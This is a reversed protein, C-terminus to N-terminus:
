SRWYTLNLAGLLALVEVRGLIMTASLVVKTAADFDAIPPWAAPDAAGFAAYLPGINAFAAITATLAADLTPLDMAVILMVLGIFLTVVALNSWIAKMLEMDYPVSGFRTSRVGHPHFLRRMEHLTQVAMAGLRYFKIGGATSIAGGGLIALFLVITVPLAAIAAPRPEFGTTSVLSIGAFLGDRLDEGGPLSGGALAVAFALGALISIGVVFYSERHRRLLTWRGEVIMRHWVISTAGVLMFAMVVFEAFTSGYASFDGNEPMFGGTSVTALAICVGAFPPVGSALLLAICVLTVVAYALTVRRVASVIRGFGEEGGAVLAMNLNPTGGLGAPALVTVITILTLLGGLWQLEARYFVGSYGLRTVDGIATAGTTTLGSVAEFLATPGDVAAITILPAAALIPPVTWVTVVLMFGEARNLRRARGQLAFFAAGAIFGVLGAVAIFDDAFALEGVAAAIGAPLLLAFALVGLVQSLFYLIGAM